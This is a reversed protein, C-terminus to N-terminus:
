GRRCARVAGCRRISTPTEGRVLKLEPQTTSSAGHSTHSIKELQGKISPWALNASGLEVAHLRRSACPKRLCVCLRWWAAHSWEHSAGAGLEHLHFACRNLSVNPQPYSLRAGQTASPAAHQTAGCRIVKITSHCSAVRLDRSPLEAYSDGVRARGGECSFRFSAHVSLSSTLTRLAISKCRM